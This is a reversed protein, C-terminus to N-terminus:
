GNKLEKMRQRALEIENAPTAQTKKIFGHLAVMTGSDFCFLIRAERGSTLSSRVEFLGDKMPRCTPMGIPWGFQVKALDHGLIRKDVANLSIIWDRVPERRSASRWFKILIPQM